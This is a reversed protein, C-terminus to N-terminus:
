RTKVVGTDLSWMLFLSLWVPLLQVIACDRCCIYLIICIFIICLCLHYFHANYFFLFIYDLKSVPTTFVLYFSESKATFVHYFFISHSVQLPLFTTSFYFRSYFSKSVCYFRPASNHNRNTGVLTTYM